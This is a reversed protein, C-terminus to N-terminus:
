VLSTSGRRYFCAKWTRVGLGRVQEDLSAVAALAVSDSPADPRGLKDRGGRKDDHMAQVREANMAPGRSAAASKSIRPSGKSVRPHIPSPPEGGLINGDKKNSVAHGQESKLGAAATAERVQPPPTRPTTATSPRPTTGAEDQGGRAVTTTAAAAKTSPSIRTNVSVNDSGPTDEEKTTSAQITEEKEEEEQGESAVVASSMSEAAADGVPAGSSALRPSLGTFAVSKLSAALDAPTSQEGAADAVAKQEAEVTAKLVGKGRGDIKSQFVKVASSKGQKIGGVSSSFGANLERKLDDLSRVRALTKVSPLRPLSPAHALGEHIMAPLEFRLNAFSSTQSFRFIARPPSM